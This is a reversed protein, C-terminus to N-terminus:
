MIEIHNFMGILEGRSKVGVKKYINNLHTKITSESVFYNM